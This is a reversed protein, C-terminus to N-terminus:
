RIMGFVGPLFLGIEPIYTVLLLVIIMMAWPWFIRRAVQIISRGAVSSAVFLTIGYPPTVMGHGTGRPM